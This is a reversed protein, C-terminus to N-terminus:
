SGRHDDNCAFAQQPSITVVAVAGAVLAFTIAVLALLRKM